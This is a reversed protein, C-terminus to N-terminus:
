PRPRFLAPDYVGSANWFTWGSVGADEAAQKQALMESLGYWYAQLWPRVPIQVRKRALEGSLRITQYPTSNPNQLGLNGSIFTSPYLMPCLYDLYPAMAELYQGIGMEDRATVTLGFVDASFFTGYPLLAAKLESLYASITGVRAASTNAQAYRADGITGDSPFRVYDVQIEDFGLGAVERAIAINYEWVEHRFPDTWALGEGDSWLAGGPTKVALDPRSQALVPDKFQVLRAITYIRRAQALRLFEGLDMLGSQYAGSAQALPDQSRYALRGRDGKVDVVVANLETREVLDLLDKIKDPLALLGFPIYIAKVQIPQLTVDLRTVSGVAQQFRRYGALKVTLAPVPPVDRLWYVGEPNSFTGVNGALVWAGALPRGTVADRIVGALTNPRLSIQIAAEGQFAVASAAFGEAQAALVTGRPLDPLFTRGTQDTHLVQEAANIAANAIPQGTFADSVYVNVGQPRFMVWGVVLLAIAGILGYGARRLAQLRTHSAQPRRQSQKRSTRTM